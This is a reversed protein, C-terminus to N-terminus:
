NEPIPNERLERAHCDELFEQLLHTIPIEQKLLAPVLAPDDLIFLYM